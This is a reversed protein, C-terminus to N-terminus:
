FLFDLLNLSLVVEVGRLPQGFYRIRMRYASSCTLQDDQALFYSCYIGKQGPGSSVLEVAIVCNHGRWAIKCSSSFYCSDLIMCSVVEQIGLAVPLKM